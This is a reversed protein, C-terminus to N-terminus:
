IEEFIFHEIAQRRLEEPDTVGNAALEVICRALAVRLEPEPRATTPRKPKIVAWAGDFVQELESSYTDRETIVPETHLRGL